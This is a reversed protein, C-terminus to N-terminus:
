HTTSCGIVQSVASGLMGEPWSMRVLPGPLPKENLMSVSEVIMSVASDMSLKGTDVVLDFNDADDWRVGYWSEIFAAHARDNDSVMAEAQGVDQALGHEIVRRVRIARPAQVRVNLVDAFDALVAFSGRGLIVTNGHQALAKTTRNLRDVTNLRQWDFRDWFGRGQEYVNETEAFGYKSLVEAILDKTVVHYGLVDGLRKAVYDGESGLSRSITIAAM